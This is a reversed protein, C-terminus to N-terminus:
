CREKVEKKLKWLKDEVVVFPYDNNITEDDDIEEFNRIILIDQIYNYNDIDKKNIMPKVEKNLESLRKDLYKELKDGTLNLSGELFKIEDKKAEQTAEKVEKSVCEFCMSAKNQCLVESCGINYYVDEPIDKGDKSIREKTKM